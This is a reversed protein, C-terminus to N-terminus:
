LGGCRCRRITGDAFPTGFWEGSDLNGYCGGPIQSCGSVSTSCHSAFSEMAFNDSLCRATSQPSLDCTSPWNDPAICLIGRPQQPYTQPDHTPGPPSWHSESQRQQEQPQASQTIFMLIDARDLLRTDRKALAQQWGNDGMRLGNAIVFHHAGDDSNIRFNVTNGTYEFSEVSIVPEPEGNENVLLDGVIVDDARKVLKADGAEDGIVVPHNGTLIISSEHTRNQSTIKYSLKKEPGWVISHIPRYSASWHDVDDSSLLLASSGTGIKILDKGTVDQEAARFVTEEAFCGCQCRKIGGDNIMMTAFWEESNLEGYCGGPIQGCLGNTPACHAAYNDLALKDAACRFGEVPTLECLPKWDEPRICKTGASTSKIGGLFGILTAIARLINARNM